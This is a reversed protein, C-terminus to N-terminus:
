TIIVAATILYRKRICQKQDDCLMHTETNCSGCGREDMQDICHPQEDCQYLHSLCRGAFRNLVLDDWIDYRRM